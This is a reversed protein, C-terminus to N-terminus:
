THQSGAAYLGNEFLDVIADFRREMFEELDDGPRLREIMPRIMHPFMILSEFLMNLLFLDRCRLQGTGIGRELHEFFESPMISQEYLMTLSKPDDLACRMMIQIIHEHDLMWRDYLQLSKRIMTRVDDVGEMAMGVASVLPDTEEKLLERLLTMEDVFLARVVELETGVRQAIRDLSSDRLGFEAFERAAAQLVLTRKDEM